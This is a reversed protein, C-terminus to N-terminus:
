RQSRPQPEAARKVKNPPPQSLNPLAAAPRHARLFTRIQRVALPIQDKSAKWPYLSVQADARSPRDGHRCRVPAGPRGAPGADADPLQGIDGCLDLAVRPPDPARVPAGSGNAPCQCHSRGRWEPQQLDSFREPQPREVRFASGGQAIEHEASVDGGNAQLRLTELAGELIFAYAQIMRDNPRRRQAEALLREVIETTAGAEALMPGTALAQESPGAGSELEQGILKALQAIATRPM